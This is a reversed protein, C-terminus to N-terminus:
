RRVVKLVKGPLVLKVSWKIQALLKVVGPMKIRMWCKAIGTVLCMIYGLGFM